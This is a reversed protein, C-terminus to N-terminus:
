LVNTNSLRDIFTNLKAFSIVPLNPRVNESIDKGNVRLFAKLAKYDSYSYDTKDLHKALELVAVRDILGMEILDLELQSNIGHQLLSSWNAINPPMTYDSSNLEKLRIIASIVSQINFSIFSNILRLVQPMPIYLETSLTEYWNGSMWLKIAKKIAGDTLKIKYRENFTALNLSFRQLKFIGDDLIYNLWSENLPEFEQNWIENDFDFHSNIEDFLRINTGSNKLIQFEGKEIIPRLKEARFEFITILTKREKENSQFYSLTQKLHENVLDYLNEIEVEEALLDIMSVDVSDLLEQLEGSLKDLIENSIVLRKRELYKTILNVIYFLQGTVPEINKEAILDKFIDFDKPDTVIVLGKTEKGARGARGVLNKLDRIKLPSYKGVVDPNYRRASHIVITKIPLNVGEALTNTCIVLRIEGKRLSDEIVERINQPFDGHHFLVGVRSCETLLYNNGFIVTFYDALNKLYDVSSYENLSFTENNKLQFVSEAALAEVGSVGGKTPAFLAVTGSKTAKLAAAVSLSKKNGIIKKNGSKDTFELEDDFLYKYLQYNNPRQKHPNVDLFYGRTRDMPKLFAYELETPRYVSSILSSDSGGLWSNVVSINPIIASIFIFRKKNGSNGKLRSLLLEYSLGRSEDDLLHGEDCIITTFQDSIGPFIDEVAMFKEPTSILLNVEAISTREELTPLNGGFITKSSIGLAGVNPALSQKLESALARYPALYLIKCNNNKKFEDYIILESISTKGSSTPMQLSCTEGSLIGKQIALKQSPFFSWVPVPKEINHIVFEKWHERDNNQRMLDTWINDSIFKKLISGGLLFSFYNEIDTDFSGLKGLSMRGLLIRSYIPSGTRLYRILLNNFRNDTIIERKLFCSIFSDIESKYDDQPYIKSLLWASASYDSLFYLGAAYLINNSQNVGIFSDRKELLSFIELGKAVSLLEDHKKEKEKDKILEIARTMLSLYFNDYLKLFPYAARADEPLHFDIFSQWSGSEAVWTNLQRSEPM